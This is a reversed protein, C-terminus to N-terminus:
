MGRSATSARFRWPTQRPSADFYAFGSVAIRKGKRAQGCVTGDIRPSGLPQSPTTGSGKFRIRTMGASPRVFASAIRRALAVRHLRPHLAMLVFIVWSLM